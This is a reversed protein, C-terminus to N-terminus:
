HGRIAAWILGLLGVTVVGVAAMLSQRQITEASTRTKRVFRMDAQAELPDEIDLGLTLFTKKVAEQAAREAIEQIESDTM